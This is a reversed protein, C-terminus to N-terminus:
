QIHLLISKLQKRLQQIKNEAELERRGLALLQEELLDMENDAPTRIM